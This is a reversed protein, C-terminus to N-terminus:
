RRRALERFRAPSVGERKKFVRCLHSQDYFGTTVAIHAIPADTHLLADRVQEIKRRRIFEGPTCGTWRRFTRALHAPHVGAVAALDNLTVPERVSAHLCELVRQLWPPRRGGSRAADRGILEVALEVTLAEVVLGSLADRERLERHLRAIIWGPFGRHCFRPENLGIPCGEFRALWESTLEVNFTRTRTNLFEEFHVAGAPHFLVTGAPCEKRGSSTREAYGGELVLAFFACAHAHKSLRASPSYAVETLRVAGLQEAFLAEGFYHGAPLTVLGDPRDHRKWPEALM